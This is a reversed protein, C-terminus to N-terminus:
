FIERIWRLRFANRVRETFRVGLRQTSISYDQRKLDARTVEPLATRFLRPILGAILGLQLFKKGPPTAPIRMTRQPM